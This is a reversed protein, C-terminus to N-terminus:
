PLKRGFLGGFNKYVEGFFSFIKTALHVLACRHSHDMDFFLTTVVSFFDNRYFKM